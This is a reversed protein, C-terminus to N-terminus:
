NLDEPPNPTGKIAKIKSRSMRWTQRVLWSTSRDLRDAEKKIDEYVEEPLYLSLRKGQM